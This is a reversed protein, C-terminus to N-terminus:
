PHGYVHREASWIASAEAERAEALETLHISDAEANEALVELEARLWDDDPTGAEPGNSIEFARERIRQLLRDHQSDQQEPAESMPESLTTEDL